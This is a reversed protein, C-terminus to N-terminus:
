ESFTTAGPILGSVESNDALFVQNGEGEWIELRSGACRVGYAETGGVFVFTGDVVKEDKKRNGAL